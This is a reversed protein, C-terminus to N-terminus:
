NKKNGADMDASQATAKNKYCNVNGGGQETGISHINIINLVDIDSMGLLAQGNGPVVFM